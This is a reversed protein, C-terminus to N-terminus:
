RKEGLATQCPSTDQAVKEVAKQAILSLGGTAVAAGVTAGATAAGKVDVAPSPAALTGGVGVVKALDGVGVGVGQRGSTRIQIDIAESRLDIKGDGVIFMSDTEIAIGKHTKAVGNEIDFHVVTCDLHATDSDKSFPNIAKILQAILDAGALNISENSLEGEGIDILANGNLGAMIERVSNGAGSVDVSVNTPGGSMIGQLQKLQGLEIKNASINARLGPKPKSADLTVDAKITGKATQAKLPMLDLKGKALKLGLEVDALETTASQIKNAQYTIDADLAKLQDVPLPDGPFVKDASGKGAKETSKATAKEQQPEEGKEFPTVDLLKSTLNAAIRMPEAQHAIELEGSLDSAGLKAQLGSLKQGDEIDTLKARVDVPGVPPLDTAALEGLAHLDPATLAVDIDIGKGDLSDAVQGDATLNIQGADGNLQVKYYAGSDAVTATLKVPALPPLETGALEGLTHLDPAKLAVDIDIGKGDLSDAVQGDATLNIKGAEGDLRIKYYPGLDAVNASVKVPALPPLETGALEAFHQLDPAQLTVEGSLGEPDLTQPIQGAIDFKIEALGGNLAAKYLGAAESVTGSVNIPGMSPLETGALKAIPATDPAEASLEVALGKGDLSRALKGGLALKITEAAGKIDIGYADGEDKIQGEVEIPGFDPLETEALQALTDLNDAKFTTQADLGVMDLPQQVRNKISIQMNGVEADLEGTWPQNRLLTALLDTTGDIKAPIENHEAVVHWDLRGNGNRNITLEDVVTDSTKGTMGDRYILRAKEMKIEHLAVVLGGGKETEQPPPESEPEELQLEWNGQGNGDTELLIDPEILDLEEIHLEGRLLPILAVKVEVTQASLMDSRSGWPANQLRIGQLLVRPHLFIKLESDGEIVLERGLAKSVQKEIPRKYRDVDVLNVFLLLVVVLSVIITAFISLYKIIKM